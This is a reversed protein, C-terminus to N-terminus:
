FKVGPFAQYANSNEDISKTINKNKKVLYLNEDYVLYSSAFIFKKITSINKSIKLIHNSLKINNLFNTNYFSFSEKTREYSAALHFIIDVNEVLKKLLAIKNGRNFELVQINFNFLYFKLNRGIFGNSGTILVRM